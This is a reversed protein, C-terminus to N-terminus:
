DILLGSTKLLIVEICSVMVTVLTSVSAARMFCIRSAWRAKADMVCSCTSRTKKAAAIAALLARMGSAFIATSSVPM